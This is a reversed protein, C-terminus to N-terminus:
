KGSCSTPSLSVFKEGISLEVEPEAEVSARDVDGELPVYNGDGVALTDRVHPHIIQPCCTFWVEMATYLDKPFSM